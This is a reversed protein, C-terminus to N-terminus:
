RTTVSLKWRVSGRKEPRPADMSGCQYLSAEMERDVPLDRYGFISPVGPAFAVTGGGLLSGGHQVAMVRLFIRLLSGIIHSDFSTYNM